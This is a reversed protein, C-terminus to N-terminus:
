PRHEEEVSEDELAETTFLEPPLRRNYLVKEVSLRTANGSSLETMTSEMATWYGQIKKTKSVVLRKNPEAESKEYLDVRLPILTVPDIWSVRKLYASNSAEVPVSELIECAVGNLTEHGIIRHHDRAVKRDRLDDYYYESNVFRGTKRSASVRRVREMAPLYIWQDTEAVSHDLTLLGTGAIDGPDTFRILTAIEGPGRELRYTIMRRVRPTHGPQMLVMAMAATSDNGNPRDYVRQALQQGTADAWANGALLALVALSIAVRM